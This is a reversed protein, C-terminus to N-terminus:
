RVANASFSFSRRWKGNRAWGYSRRPPALDFRLWLSLQRTQPPWVLCNDNHSSCLGVRHDVLSWPDYYDALTYRLITPAPGPLARNAVGALGVPAERARIGREWTPDGRHNQTTGERRAAMVISHIAVM